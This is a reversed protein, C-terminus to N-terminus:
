WSSFAHLLRKTGHWESLEHLNGDLDRLAFPPAVLADLAARRQESPLAIAVIRAAADVVVQRGLVSAVEALDVQGDVFQTSADRIPVCVDGRCLGEPKLEWGIAAPLTAPDLRIREGAVTAEVVRVDDGVITVDIM